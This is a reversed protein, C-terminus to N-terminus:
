IDKLMPSITGDYLIDLRHMARTCAIYLLSRDLSSHYNEESASCIVVQDFELGKAMHASTVIVGQRYETSQFSIKFISDSLDRLEGYIESAMTDDKCIIGMTQYESDLYEAVIARLSETQKEHTLFGLISPNRGHREVPVLKENHSIAQALMTIEYTSRYSKNLEVFQADPFVSRLVNASSSTYPNVSQASDGLITKECPFLKRIVAYQIPTYDQMEDILIHQIKRFGEVPEFFMQTHILPFIDDYPLAKSKKVFLEPMGIHSYFNVYLSMSDRFPFMKAIASRIKNKMAIPIAVGKARELRSTLYEATNELRERIPSRSFMRYWKLIDEKSIKTQDLLVDAPQFFTEAACALYDNLQIVFESTAKYKIRHIMKKDEHKILEAVQQSFAQLVIKDGLLQQAIEEMGTEIINEEGLEPLVNSIYSSFVQNPSIIMINDSTLHGRFQYLLYAVRHLAISTKGSGVVGQVILAKASANRIIANQERQITVVINKMKESSTRSLEKQLIEDDIQIDSNLMYEMQSDRIKYQRKLSMEGSIQGIPALYHVPGHEFDYFISSVPARWDYIIIKGGAEESFTYMGIYYPQLATEDEAQFDIRGFYPSFILRALREKEAITQAHVSMLEQVAMRNAATEVGDMDSKNSWIYNADEQIADSYHDARSSIISHSKRLKTLVTDLYAFEEAKTKNIM